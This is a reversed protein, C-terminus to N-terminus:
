HWSPMGASEGSEVRLDITRDSPSAAPATAQPRSALVFRPVMGPSPAVEIWQRGCCVCEYGSSRHQLSASGPRRVFVIPEMCPPVPDRHLLGPLSKCGHCTTIMPPALPPRAHPLLRFSPGRWCGDHRDGALKHRQEPTGPTTTSVFRPSRRSGAVDGRVHRAAKDNRRRRGRGAM